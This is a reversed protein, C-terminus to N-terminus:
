HETSLPAKTLLVNDVAGPKVMWVYVTLFKIKRMAEVSAPTPTVGPIEFKEQKWDPSSSSVAKSNYVARLESLEPKEHPHIGPQWQYGIFYLRYGGGKAELTCSYRSAPDFPFAQSELKVGADGASGFKAVNKRAGDAAVSVQEKNNAYYHNGMWAFDTVWGKLPDGANEFSGNELLNQGQAALSFCGIALLSLLLFLRM